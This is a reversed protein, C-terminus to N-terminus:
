QIVFSTFHIDLVELPKAKEVLPQTFIEKLEDRLALKGEPTELDEASKASVTSIIKSRLIPMFTKYRPSEKEDAIQIAFAIQIFKGGMLNFTMPEITVYLPDKIPEEKKVEEVDEKHKNMVLFYYAAGGGLLLVLLVGVIIFLMKKSKKPQADDGEEGTEPAPSKAKSM